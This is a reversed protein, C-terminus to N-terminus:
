YVWWEPPTTTSIGNFELCNCCYPPPGKITSSNICDELATNEVTYSLQDKNFYWRRAEEKVVGFYGVVRHEGETSRFNSKLNFPPTDFLGNSETQDQMEKWFYYYEESLIQQNILVSFRYFIHENRVTPIFFLEKLYDGAHDEQLTFDTMLAENTVWCMNPEVACSVMPSKYIWLPDYTWRYFITKSENEPVDIVVDVGQEDLIIEEGNNIEVRSRITEKFSIEGMPLPTSAPLSEWVSEFQSGDPLFVNLKYSIGEKAQFDPDMLFYRGAEIQSETYVWEGNNDDVILVSAGSIREDHINKVDSSWHLRVEFYRGDSPYDKTQQYSKDSIYAEIVLVPENNEIRFQYPDICSCLILFIWGVRILINM